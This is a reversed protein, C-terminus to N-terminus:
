VQPLKVDIVSGFENVEIPAAAKSEHVLKAEIVIGLAMVEISSPVKRPHPKVDTVKPFETVEM